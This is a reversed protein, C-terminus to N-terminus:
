KHNETAVPTIRAIRERSRVLMDSSFYPDAAYKRTFAADVRDQLAQDTLHDFRVTYAIHDTEVVGARQALAAAFWRSAPNTSRVFVARDVVVTWVWILTGPTVGDERYPAIKFDDSSEIHRLQHDSWTM